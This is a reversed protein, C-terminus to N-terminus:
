GPKGQDLKEEATSHTPKRSIEWLFEFVRRSEDAIHKDQIIVVRPEDLWTMLYAVVDGFVVKVDGDVFLRDDMWRYESVDGMLYTDKDKVLSRMRIGSRRMARFKEIVVPPSRSDDAASFLIEGQDKILTLFADDLLKLYCDSGEYIKVLNQTRRVGGEIFAIGKAHFAAGLKAVTQDDPKVQDTEIRAVTPVSVGAAAALDSQGWKLIARAARIQESTLHM